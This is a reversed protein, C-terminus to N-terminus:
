GAPEMMGKQLLPAAEPSTVFRILERAAEQEKSGVMIAVAFVVYEHLDGPLHGVYDTGAVPKSVNVQQIAMEAEGRAVYGAAPGGESRVTRSKMEGAIGLKEIARAAIVGSGGFSYCISKAGLLTQKFAEPTSIAPWPAGSKVSLGVAARAFIASSGKVVRGQTIVRDMPDVYLAILDSAANSALARDLTAATEQTVIVKRGTLRTFAPALENWASMSGMSARVVLDAAQPRSRAGQLEDSM